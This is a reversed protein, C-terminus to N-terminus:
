FRLALPFPWTLACSSPGLRLRALMQRVDPSFGSARSRYLSLARLGIVERSIITKM